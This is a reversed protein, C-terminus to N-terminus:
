IGFVNVFGVTSDSSDVLVPDKKPHKNEVQSHSSDVYDVKPGYEELRFIWGFDALGLLQTPGLSPSIWVSAIRGPLGPAACWPSLRVAFPRLQSGPLDHHGSGLRPTQLDGVKPYRLSFVLSDGPSCGFLQSKHINMWIWSYWIIPM